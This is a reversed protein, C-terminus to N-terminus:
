ETSPPVTVHLVKDAGQLDKHRHDIELAEVIVFDKDGPYQARIDNNTVYLAEEWDYVRSNFGEANLGTSILRALASKGTGQKGVLHILIAM